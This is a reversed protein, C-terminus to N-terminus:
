REAQLAPWLSAMAQAKMPEGRAISASLVSRLRSNVPTPTGTLRGHLVIEGNLFDLETTNSGRQVSQWTSQMGLEIGAAPDNGFGTVDIARDATLDAYEWGCADYVAIAEAVLDERLRERQQTTGDLLDVANTLNHLLKARKWRQIQPTEQVLFSARRFDHAIEESVADCGDPYHGLTAIGIHPASGNVIHGTETYLAPIQMTASYVRAFRRLLARESELGNQLCLVPLCDAAPKSGATSDSVDVVDRWAWTQAVAEVDQSKVAIVLIDDARLEVDDAALAVNLRTRYTGTPNRLTLPHEQLYRGQQGRAVLVYEIGEQDFHFAISAGIAGAGVIVYRSM